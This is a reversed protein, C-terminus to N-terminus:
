TASTANFDLDPALRYAARLEALGAPSGTLLLAHGRQRVRAALEALLAVGASDVRPVATLDVTRLEGATAQIRPWLTTVAGRDLEGSLHLTSGDLRHAAAEAVM